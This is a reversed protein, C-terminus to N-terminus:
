FDPLSLKVHLHSTRERRGRQGLGAWPGLGGEGGGESGKMGEGRAGM